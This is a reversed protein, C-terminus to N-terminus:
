KDNFLLRYFNFNKLEKKFMIEAMQCITKLQELPKVNLLSVSQLINQVNRYTLSSYLQIIPNDCDYTISYDFAGSVSANLHGEKDANIKTNDEKALSNMIQQYVTEATAQSNFHINMIIGVDSLYLNSEPVTIMSMTSEWLKSIDSEDSICSVTPYGPTITYTMLNTGTESLEEVSPSIRLIPYNKNGIVKITKTAFLEDLGITRCLNMIITRNVVTSLSFSTIGCDFERNAGIVSAIPKEKM